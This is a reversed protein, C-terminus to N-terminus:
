LKSTLFWFSEINLTSANDIKISYQPLFLLVSMADVKSDSGM